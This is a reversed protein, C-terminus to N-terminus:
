PRSFRPDVIFEEDTLSLLFNILDTKEQPQIPFRRILTTDVTSQPNPALASNGGYETIHPSCPFSTNRTDGTTFAGCTSNFGGNSYHDIVRGLAQTACGNITAGNAQGVPLNPNLNDDCSISGDHMYPFTLAINRLSPTKFGGRHASNGTVEILGLNSSPNGTGAVNYLANNHYLPEIKASTNSHFTSDNFNIGDHCHFCEAIESSFFNFGRRASPSLRSAQGQYTAKDFASNGSIMSRQFSAISKIINTVNIPEAEAPFAKRFLEPYNKIGRLRERIEEERISLGLEVPNEGFLPVHMQQELSILLINNWTQRANYAVNFLPQSNRTTKDGAIGTSLIKGDSFALRQFHCSGCSKTNNGSLQNEYFLQRGLDVKEQSMPNDEPVRPVPFGPPLNWQYGQPQNFAFLGLLLFSNDEKEKSLFPIKCNCHILLVVIIFFSSIAPFSTKNEEKRTKMFEESLPSSFTEM